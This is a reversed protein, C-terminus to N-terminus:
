RVCIGFPADCVNMGYAILAILFGAFSTNLVISTTACYAAEIELLCIAFYAFAEDLYVVDYGNM